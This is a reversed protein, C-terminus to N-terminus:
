DTSPWDSFRTANTASVYSSAGRVDVQHADLALKFGGFSRRAMIRGRIEEADARGASLADRLERVLDRPDRGTVNEITRNGVPGLGSRRHEALLILLLIPQAAVPQRLGDILVAQEAV